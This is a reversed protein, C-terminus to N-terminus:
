QILENSVILLEPNIPDGNKHIEYHLKPGVSWKTTGVTGIIEGRDISRGSIVSSTELHAYVTKVGDSHRIVVRRGWYNDTEVKEIIGDATAVVTDGAVVAFDIGNNIASIGTFNDTTDGFRCTIVATTDTLPFAVPIKQWIKNQETSQAVTTLFASITDTYSQLLALSFEDITKESYNVSIPQSENQPVLEIISTETGSLNELVKKVSINQQQLNFIIEELRANQEEADKFQTESDTIPNTDGGFFVVIGAISIVSMCIILIFLFRVPLHRYEGDGRSENYFFISRKPSL